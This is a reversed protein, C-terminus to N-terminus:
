FLNNEKSAHKKQIKSRSFLKIKLSKDNIMKLSTKYLEDIDM